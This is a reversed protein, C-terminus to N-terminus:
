SLFARRLMEELQRWCGSRTKLNRLSPVSTTHQRAIMGPMARRWREASRTPSVNMLTDPVAGVSRTTM